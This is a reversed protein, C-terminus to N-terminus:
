DWSRHNHRALRHADGLRLAQSLGAAFAEPGYQKVIDRSLAGMVACRPEDRHIRALASAISAPTRPSFLYGNRGNEVLEAAGCVESVLVPLGAAMAENVVLGWQEVSSPLVFAAALGYYAPLEGYQKFGPLLVNAELGLRARLDLIEPRLPGDVLVV